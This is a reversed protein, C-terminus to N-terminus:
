RNPTTRRDAFSDLRKLVPERLFKLEDIGRTEARSWDQRRVFVPAPDSSQHEGFFSAVISKLRLVQQRTPNDGFLRKVLISCSSASDPLCTSVIDVSILSGRIPECLYQFENADYTLVANAPRLYSLGLSLPTGWVKESKEVGTGSVTSSAYIDAKRRSLAALLGAVCLKVESVTKSSGGWTARYKTEYHIPWVACQELLGQWAPIKELPAPAHPERMPEIATSGNEIFARITYSVYLKQKGRPAVSVQWRFERKRNVSSFECDFAQRDNRVILNNELIAKTTQDIKGAPPYLGEGLELAITSSVAEGAPNELTYVCRYLVMDAGLAIGPWPAILVQEETLHLNAGAVRKITHAARSETGVLGGGLLATALILFRTWLVSTRRM